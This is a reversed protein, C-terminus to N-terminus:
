KRSTIIKEDQLEKADARFDDREYLLTSIMQKMTKIEDIHSVKLKRLDNLELM